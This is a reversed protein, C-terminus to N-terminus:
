VDNSIIVVNTLKSHKNNSHKLWKIQIYRNHKRINDFLYFVSTTEQELILVVFHIM